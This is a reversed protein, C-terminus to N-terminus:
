NGTWPTYLGSPDPNEYGMLANNNNKENRVICINMWAPRGETNFRRADAHNTGEYGRLVPKNLRKYDFFTVGEGWFEVRKQFFIEDVVEDTTSATCKYSAYRYTKMFNELLAKGESANQHAAAEAEILYMEEVRMMPYASAAGVNYDNLEGSAPRFKVSAYTPLAAGIENDIFPVKGELTHGEPAVFTLKRFDENSIQSYVRADIMTYPGAAAYGFQAENSMWSTWNVIGTSVVDDEKKMQSGWMWSSTTLDNFGTTTNLWQDKTTPTYNGANIAKRAYEKAKPYDAVWMYMRAKLGFVVSLDPLTKEMRAAKDILEEAKSLDALIFEFIKDRSVRPNNRATSDATSETVLPVTLNLVNNGAANIYSTKDNELFEFLQAMELYLFGRYAYGIGLYGLQLDTAGDEKIANIVTNATLVYRYYYNWFQQCMVYDEGLYTNTSWYSFWDYSSSVVTMDTTMVDRIHMMAGYGFDSHRSSGLVNYKNAFAPMAWVLAETAKASSQLQSETVTNTPITEEICRTTSLVFSVGIVLSLFNYINKM